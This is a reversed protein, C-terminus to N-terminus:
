KSKLISLKLERTYGGTVRASDIHYRKTLNLKIENKHWIFFALVEHHLGRVLILEAAAEFKSLIISKQRM